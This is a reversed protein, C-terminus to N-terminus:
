IFHFLLTAYGPLTKESWSRNIREGLRKWCITGKLMKHYLFFDEGRTARQDKAEWGGCINTLYIGMTWLNGLISKQPIKNCCWWLFSPGQASLQLYLWLVFPSSAFLLYLAMAKFSPTLSLQPCGKHGWVVRSSRTSLETYCLLEPLVARVWPLKSNLLSWIILTDISSFTLHHHTCELWIFKM